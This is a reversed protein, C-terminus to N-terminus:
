YNIERLEWLEVRPKPGGNRKQRRQRKALLDLAYATLAEREAADAVEYIEKIYRMRNYGIVVCMTRKNNRPMSVKLKCLSM